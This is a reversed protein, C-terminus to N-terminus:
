TNQTCAKNLDPNASVTTKVNQLLQEASANDPAITRYNQKLAASFQPAAAKDCGILTALANLHEGSGQAIEMSLTDLNSSVYLEQQVDNNVYGGSGGCNSTGSTIGFTQTGSTANTTVAFIQLFGGSSIVMSGLGCGAQKYGGANALNAFAVSVAFCILAINKM